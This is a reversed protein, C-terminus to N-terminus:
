LLATRQITSWATADGIEGHENTGWCWLTGNTRIACTHTYGADVTV